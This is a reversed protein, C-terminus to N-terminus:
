IIWENYELLNDIVQEVNGTLCELSFKSTLAMQVLLLGAQAEAVAKLIDNSQCTLADALARCKDAAYDYCQLFGHESIIQVLKCDIENSM